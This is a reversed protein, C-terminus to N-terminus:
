ARVVLAPLPPLRLRRCEKGVEGLASYLAQSRHTIHFFEDVADRLQEVLEAYTIRPDALRTRLRLCEYVAEALPSMRRESRGGTENRAIGTCSVSIVRRCTRQSATRHSPPRATSAPSSPQSVPCRGQSVSEQRGRPARSPAARLKGISSTNRSIIRQGTPGSARM